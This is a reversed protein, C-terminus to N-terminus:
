QSSNSPQAPTYTYHLSSMCNRTTLSIRRNYADDGLDAMTKEAALIDEKTWIKAGADYLTQLHALADRAQPPPNDSNRAEVQKLLHEYQRQQDPTIPGPGRATTRPM